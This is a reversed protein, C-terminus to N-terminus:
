RVIPESVDMPVAAVQPAAADGAQEAAQHDQWWAVAWIGAAIMALFGISGWGAHAQRLGRRRPSVIRSLRVALPERVSIVSSDECSPGGDDQEVPAVATSEEPLPMAAAPPPSQEFCPFRALTRMAPM